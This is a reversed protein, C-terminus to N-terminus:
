GFTSIDAINSPKPDVQSEPSSPNCPSFDVRELCECTTCDLRQISLTRISRPLQKAVSVSIQAGLLELHTLSPPFFTSDPDDLESSNWTIFEIRQFSLKLTTLNRPLLHIPFTRHHHVEGPRGKTPTQVDVTADSGEIGSMELTRLTPSLFKWLKSPVDIGITRRQVRAGFVLDVPGDWADDGYFGIHTLLPPLCRLDNQTQFKETVVDLVELSKPLQPLLEKKLGNNRISLSKLHQPLFNGKKKQMPYDMDRTKFHLLTAPLPDYATWHRVTLSTLSRPHSSILSHPCTLSELRPLHSALAIQSSFRPNFLFNQLKDEQVLISLSKLMKPLEALHPNWDILWGNSGGRDDLIIDEVTPLQNFLAPWRKLGVPDNGFDLKKVVGPSCLRSWIAKSGSLAVRLLQEGSLYLCFGAWLDPPLHAITPAGIGLQHGEHQFTAM